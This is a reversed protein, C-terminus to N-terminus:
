IQVSEDKNEKKKQIERMILPLACVPGKGDGSKGIIITNRTEKIEEPVIIRGM